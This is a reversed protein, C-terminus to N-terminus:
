HEENMSRLDIICHELGQCDTVTLPGFGLNSILLYSLLQSHTEEDLVILPQYKWPDYSPEKYFGCELREIPSLAHYHEYIAQSDNDDQYIEYLRNQITQLNQETLLGTSIFRSFEEDTPFHFLKM